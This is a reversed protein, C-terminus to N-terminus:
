RTDVFLSQCSRGIRGEVDFLQSEALGAGAPGYYSSTRMGIWEGVPPRLLHVTLDPNIFLFQEYPLSASVGNGFDAAAAARELGSPVEDEIVPHKLRIWVAIPGPQTWSGEVFSHECAHSHFAVHDTTTWTTHELVGQEPPPMPQDIAQNADDPLTLVASRIRLARVRAVEAGDDTTLV